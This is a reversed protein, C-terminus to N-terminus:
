DSVGVAVNEEGEPLELKQPVGDKLVTRYYHRGNIATGYRNSKDIEYSTVSFKESAKDRSTEWEGTEHCMWVYKKPPPKPKPAKELQERRYFGRQAFRESYKDGHGGRRVTAGKKYHDNYLTLVEVQEWNGTSIPIYVFDGVRLTEFDAQEM